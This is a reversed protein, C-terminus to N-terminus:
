DEIKLTIQSTSMQALHCKKGGDQAIKCLWAGILGSVKENDFPVQFVLMGQSNIWAKKVVGRLKGFLEIERLIREKSGKKIEHTVFDGRCLAAFENRPLIVVDYGYERIFKAIDRWFESNELIGDYLAQNIGFFDILANRADEESEAKEYKVRWYTPTKVVEVVKMLFPKHALLFSGDIAPIEPGPFGTDEYMLELGGSVHQYKIELNAHGGWLRLVPNVYKLFTELDVDKIGLIEPFFKDILIRYLGIPPVIGKVIQSLWFALPLPILYGVNESIILSRLMEKNDMIDEPKIPLSPEYSHGRIVERIARSINGGHKKILPALLNLDKEELTISKRIKM